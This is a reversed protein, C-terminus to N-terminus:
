TFKLYKKNNKASKVTKPHNEVKEVGVVEERIDSRRGVM